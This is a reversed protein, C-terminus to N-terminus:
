QHDLMVVTPLQQVVVTRLSAMGTDMEWVPYGTVGLTAGM